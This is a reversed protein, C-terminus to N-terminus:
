KSMSSTTGCRMRKIEAMFIGMEEDTLIRKPLREKKPATVCETPNIPILHERVAAKMASHLTTHVGRVTTGSLAYGMQPHAHVRGEKKLKTYMKQIDATTVSTIKQQRSCAKHLQQLLESVWETYKKPGDRGCLNGAMPGAM